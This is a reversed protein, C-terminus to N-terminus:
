YDHKIAGLFEGGSVIRFFRGAVIPRIRESFLVTGIKSTSVTTLSKADKLFSLLDSKPDLDYM